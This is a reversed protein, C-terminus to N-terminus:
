KLKSSYVQPLLEQQALQALVNYLSILAMRNVRTNNKRGELRFRMEYYM